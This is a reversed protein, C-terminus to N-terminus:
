GSADVFAEVAAAGAAENLDGQRFLDRLLNSIENPCALGYKFVLSLLENTRRSIFLQKLGLQITETWEEIM